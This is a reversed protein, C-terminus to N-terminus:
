SGKAKFYRLLTWVAAQQDEDMDNPDFNELLVESVKKGVVAVSNLAQPSIEPTVVPVAGTRKKIAIKGRILPRPKRGSLVRGSIEIGAEKAIYLFFTACKQQVADSGPFAKRFTENFHGPTASGLDLEFLPAYSAHVLRQLAQAWQDTGYANVLENLRSSPVGDQDILELFRLATLLQTASAGSMKHLVSRDIRTPLGHEHLDQIFSRTTTWSVYPPTHGQRGKQQGETAM